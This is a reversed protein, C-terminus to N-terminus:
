YMCRNVNCNKKKDSTLHERKKQEDGEGRMVKRRRERGKRRRGKRRRRKRLDSIGDSMKREEKVM